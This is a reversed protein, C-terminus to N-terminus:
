SASNWWNYAQLMETVDIASSYLSWMAAYKLTELSVPPFNIDIEWWAQRYDGRFQAKGCSLKSIRSTLPDAPIDDRVM